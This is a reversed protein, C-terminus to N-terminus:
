LREMKANGSPKLSREGPVMLQPRSLARAAEDLLEAKANFKAQDFILIETAILWTTFCVMLTCLPFARWGRVSAVSSDLPDANRIIQNSMPM